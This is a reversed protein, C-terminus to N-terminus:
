LTGAISFPRRGLGDPTGLLQLNGVLEPAAGARPAVQGELVYGPQRTLRLTGEVALPGGLDVLRGLPESGGGPFTVAYSGLPTLRGAAQTLDRAEIRGQLETIAGHEIRVLSLETHVNGHLLPPMRPIQRPDLPLDAVLNRLQISGGLGRAVDATGAVPGHTLVIHAALTGTLLRLPAIEWALDGFPARELTLGDCSGHWVSGEVSACTLSGTRPLVWSAPLRALVIVLFGGAALLAIWFNRPV